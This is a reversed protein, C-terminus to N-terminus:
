REILYNHLCTLPLSGIAKSSGKLSYVVSVSSNGIEDGVKEGTYSGKSSFRITSGGRLAKLLRMTGTKDRKPHPAAIFRKNARFSGSVKNTEYNVVEDNVVTFDRVWVRMTSTSRFCDVVLGGDIIGGTNEVLIELADVKAQYKGNMYWADTSSAEVFSVLSFSMLLLPVCLHFCRNLFIGM